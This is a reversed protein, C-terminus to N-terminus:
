KEEERTRFLRRSIYALLEGAAVIIAYLFLIAGIILLQEFMVLEALIVRYYASVTGIARANPSLGQCQLHVRLVTVISFGTASAGRSCPLM